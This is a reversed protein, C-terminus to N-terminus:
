GTAVVFAVAYDGDHSISVQWQTLGQAAAREAAQGSLTVAPRGSSTRLVEIDTLPVEGIGIGLAKLVAEKAAWRGALSASRGGCDEIEAGTLSRRLFSGGPGAHKEWRAIRVIDTGIALM